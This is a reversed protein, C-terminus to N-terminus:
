DHGTATGSHSCQGSANKQRGCATRGCRGQGPSIVGRRRRRAGCHGGCGRLRHRARAVRGSHHAPVRGRSDTTRGRRLVDDRGGRAASRDAGVSCRCRHLHGVEPIPNRRRERDGRDVDGAHARSRLATVLDDRALRRPERDGPKRRTPDHETRHSPDTRAEHRAGAHAHRTPADVEKRPHPRRGAPSTERRRPRTVTSVDGQAGDYGRRRPQTQMVGDVSDDGMVTIHPRHRDRLTDRHVRTAVRRPDPHRHHDPPLHCRCVPDARRHAQFTPDGSRPLADRGSAGRRSPAVCETPIWCSGAPVHQAHLRWAIGNAGM